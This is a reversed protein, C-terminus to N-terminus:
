GKIMRFTVNVKPQTSFKNSFEINEELEKVLGKNKASFYLIVEVPKTKFNSSLAIEKPFISTLTQLHGKKQMKEIFHPTMYYNIYINEKVEINNLNILDRIKNLDNRPNEVEKTPNDYLEAAIDYAKNYDKTEFRPAKADTVYILCKANTMTKFSDVQNQLEAIVPGELDGTTDILSNEVFFINLANYTSKGAGFLQNNITLCCFLILAVL